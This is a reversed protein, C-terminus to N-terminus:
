DEVDHSISVDKWSEADDRLADAKEMFVRYGGPGGALWVPPEDNSALDVIVLAFKQPHGAQRHNNADLLEM